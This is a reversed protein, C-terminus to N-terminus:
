FAAGVHCHDAFGNNSVKQTITEMAEKRRGRVRSASERNAIRRLIVRREELTVDSSHPDKHYKIPRGVKGKTIREQLM